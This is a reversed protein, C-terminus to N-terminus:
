TIPEKETVAWAEYGGILDSVDAFGAARLVSSAISSRYGSPCLVVTPADADLSDLEATLRSLPICRAGAVEGAEAIKGPARVDLVVLGDISAMRERLQAVTLRSSPEVRGLDELTPAPDALMDTVRDYGIRALRVRVELATNPDGMLVVEQDARLVNGAYEPFRGQLGVNIAGRLHGAAFDSPERTDLLKAGTDRAALVAEVTLAEPLANEELLPRKERNRRADFSFYPPAAPSGETVIAVFEDESM